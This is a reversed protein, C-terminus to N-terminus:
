RAGKKARRRRHVALLATGAGFTLLTAPEPTQVQVEQVSVKRASFPTFIEGNQIIMALIQQPTLGTFPMDFKATFTSLEGPNNTDIVHGRFGLIVTTGLLDEDFRFPSSVGAACEDAPNLSVQGCSLIIDLIFNLGPLPSGPFTEFDPLGPDGNGSLLQVGVPLGILDLEQAIFGGLPAFYGLSTSEVRALGTGTGTPLFDISNPSVRIAGTLDLTGVIPAAQATAPLIALAAVAMARLITKKPSLLRMLDNM